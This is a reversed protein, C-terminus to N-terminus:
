AFYTAREAGRARGEKRGVGGRTAKEQGVRGEKECVLPVARDVL